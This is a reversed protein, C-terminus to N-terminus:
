NTTMKLCTTRLGDGSLQAVQILLDKKLEMGYSARLEYLTAVHRICFNLRDWPVPALSVVPSTRYAPLRTGLPPSNLHPFITLKRCRETATFLPFIFLVPYHLCDAGPHLM